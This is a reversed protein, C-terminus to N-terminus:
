ITMLYIKDIDNVLCDCYCFMFWLVGFCKWYIEFDYLTYVTKLEGDM